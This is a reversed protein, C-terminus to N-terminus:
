ATLLIPEACISFRDILPFSTAFSARPALCSSSRFGAPATPPRAIGSGRRAIRRRAALDVADALGDAKRRRLGCQHDDGCAACSLRSRHTRSSRPRRPRWRVFDDARCRSRDGERLQGGRQRLPLCLTASAQMSATSAMQGDFSRAIEAMATVLASRPQVVRRDLTRRSAVTERWGRRIARGERTVGAYRSSSAVRVWAAGGAPEGCRCGIGRWIRTWGSRTRTTWRRRRRNRPVARARAAAGEGAGAKRWRRLGVVIGVLAALIAAGPVLWAALDFGSNDPTALM